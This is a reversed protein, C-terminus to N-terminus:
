RLLVMKRCIKLENVRLHYVYIGSATQGADWQVTYTGKKQKEELLTATKQGLLNYISLEVDVPLDYDARIRYWITTKSNFPNPYNQALELRLPLRGDAKEPEALDTTLNPDYALLYGNITTMLATSGGPYVNIRYGQEQSLTYSEFQNYLVNYVLHSYSETGVSMIGIVKVAKQGWVTSAFTGQYEAWDHKIASYAAYHGTNDFVLYSYDDTRYFDYINTGLPLWLQQNYLGDFILTQNMAPYAFSVFDRQVYSLPSTSSGPDYEAWTDYAPSYLFLRTNAGSGPVVLAHVNTGSYGAIYGDAKIELSQLVDSKSNFSYVRLTDTIRGSMSLWHNGAGRYKEYFYFMNEPVQVLSANNNLVDYGMLKVLGYGIFADSGLFYNPVGLGSQDLEIAVASQFGGKIGLYLILESRIAMGQDYFKVEQLCFEAGSYSWGPGSTAPNYDFSNHEMKGSRTDFGYMHRRFLTAGGLDEDWTLFGCFCPDAYSNYSPLVHQVPLVNTQSDFEGTLASYGGFNCISQDGGWYIFGDELFEWSALIVKIEAFSKTMSSYTIM